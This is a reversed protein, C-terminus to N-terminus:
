MPSHRPPNCRFNSAAAATEARCWSRWPPCGELASSTPSVAATPASTPASSTALCRREGRDDSTAPGSFATSSFDLDVTAVDFDVELEFYRTALPAVSSQFAVKPGGRTVRGRERTVKVLTETSPADAIVLRVVDDIHINEKNELFGFRADPRVALDKLYCALAFNGFTTETSAPTDAM